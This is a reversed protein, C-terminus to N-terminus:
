SPWCHTVVGNFQWQVLVMADLELHEGWFWPTEGGFATGWTGLPSSHYGGLTDHCGRWAPQRLQWGRLTWAVSDTCDDVLLLREYDNMRINVHISDVMLYDNNVMLEDNNAMIVLMLWCIIPWGLKNISERHGLSLKDAISLIPDGWGALQGNNVMTLWGHQETYDM